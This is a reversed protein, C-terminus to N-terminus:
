ARLKESIIEAIKRSATGDGYLPTWPTDTKAKLASLIKEENPGTLTNWGGHLTETWETEERVTICRKKQWYAEKQLGGSDTIVLSSGRILLLMELYPKPDTLILNDPLDHSKLLNKARPHVPWIVKKEFQGLASLISKLNEPNDTNSPRHLTFVAYEGEPLQPKSDKADAAALFTLVADYMVDGVNHVGKTVGERALQNVGEDSSCFLLDSIHDTLVRNVEEPMKRNFSRLGAEVHIVPVHIKSAALAGAITSNTDGYVMLFRPLRDGSLMFDEILELMKGTQQGHRGSGAELNKAPRPIGLEDFFVDSMNHDYHQGTHIITESIGKDHLAKSVVAAKVFQPRAGLITLIDTM